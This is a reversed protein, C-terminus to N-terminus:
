KEYFTECLLQCHGFFLKYNFNSFSRIMTCPYYNARSFIARTLSQRLRDLVQSEVSNMAATKTRSENYLRIFLKEM